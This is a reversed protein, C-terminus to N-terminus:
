EQSDLAPLSTLHCAVHHAGSTEQLPPELQACIDMAEPCRTRFRCGTPIHMPSPIEGQLIIRQRKSAQPMLEPNASLLAQTYP